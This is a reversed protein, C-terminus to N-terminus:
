VKYMGYTPPTVMIADKGPQCIIRVLMDIIEDSGVGLFINDTSPVSPRLRLVQQKVDRGLPDPYRHLQREDAQAEIKLSNSGDKAETISAQFVPGYSNENADLLIGESYDDRACRYPVLKQINQRVIRKADFSSSSTPM